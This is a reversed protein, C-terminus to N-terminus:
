SHQESLSRRAHWICRTPEGHQKWEDLDMAQNLPNFEWLDNLFGVNGIGVYGFGGFLWFNGSSDTWSLAGHRAGPDNSASAVGQSAYIGPQNAVCSGSVWTWENAAPSFEWLDGYLGSSSVALNDFSGGFLWLNGSTDTWGVASARLGPTNSASAVGEACSTFLNPAYVASNNPADAGNVWTWEKTAPNFEWLDSFEGATGTSDFGGGGYLWFNGSSDTWSLAGYRAGLTNSASAVGKTAM